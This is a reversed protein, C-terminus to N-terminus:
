EPKKGGFDFKADSKTKGADSRKKRTPQYEKRTQLIGEVVRFTDEAQELETKMFWLRVDMEDIDPM